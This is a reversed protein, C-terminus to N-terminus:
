SWRRDTKVFEVFAKLPAPLHHRSPYYLFPGSFVQSWAPMVPVLRGADLSPKVFEEFAFILGLGAEAAAVELEVMDALLVTKPNVKIEGSESEFTWPATRGNTFRHRIARHNVLDRPHEPMGHQALYSPAAAGVFCQRRPGIPIAVMDLDLSEEYRIGADFGEALVDVFADQSAVEVSIDPYRAMFDTLIAPLICRSVIIPVNLRLRGVPQDRFTNIGDLASAIEALTPSLRELLQAGAETLTVSRTTRNLLRVGQRAELRRVADSLSSASVGRLKGANRFSRAQAVAAFADLEALPLDTMECDGPRM